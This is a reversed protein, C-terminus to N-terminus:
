AAAIFRKRPRGHAGREPKSEGCRLAQEDSAARLRQAQLRRGYPGERLSAARERRRKIGSSRGSRGIVALLSVVRSTTRSSTRSRCPDNTLGAVNLPIRGGERCNPLQSSRSGTM